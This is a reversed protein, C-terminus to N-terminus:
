GEKGLRVTFRTYKFPESEVSIQHGLREIIKAAIYLGMGTSKYKGNHHSGGIFGKEFVRSIDEQRIGEGHDEVCLLVEREKSTSWIKLVPRGAAYKIANSILQDLVYVLWSKDTYVKVDEVSLELLFHNKILFFQNNRVSAKVCGPLSVAKVQIDFLKGQVKCGLLAGNLQANIRELQEQMQGRLSSDEIKKNMLLSALLPIKVEHCWKAIYDQLDCNLDFQEKLQGSLVRVDHEAIEINELDLFEQYIVSGYELLERKRVQNKWYAVYGAGGYFLACSALLLDLYLLYWIKVDPLLFIFYLNYSLCLFGCFLLQKKIKKLWSM